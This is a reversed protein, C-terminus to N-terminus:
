LFHLHCDGAVFRAGAPRRAELTAHYAGAGVQRGEWLRDVEETPVVPIPASLATAPTPRARLAATIRERDEAPVAVTAAPARLEPLYYAENFRRGAVSLRPRAVEYRIAKARRQAEDEVLLSLHYTPEAIHVYPGTSAAHLHLRGDFRLSPTVRVLRPIFDDSWPPEDLITRADPYLWAQAIRYQEVTRSALLEPLRAVLKASPVEDGDLRLIWESRCQAHLWALHRELSHFEIRLVRDAISAYGALTEEDARADAVLVIEDALARLPELITRVRGAPQATLMCVSLSM